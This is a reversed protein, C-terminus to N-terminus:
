ASSPPRNNDRGYEVHERLDCVLQAQPPFHRVHVFFILGVFLLGIVVFLFGRM